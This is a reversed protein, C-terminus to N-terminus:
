GRPPHQLVARPLDRAEKFRGLAAVPNGDSLLSGEGLRQVLVGLNARAQDNDPEKAAVEKAREYGQQYARRADETYGLKLLLDGLEQCIHIQAFTTTGAREVQGAVNNLSQRLMILVQERLQALEPAPKLPLLR